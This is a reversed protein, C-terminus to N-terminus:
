VPVYNLFRPESPGFQTLSCHTANYPCYAQHLACRSWSITSTPNSVWGWIQVSLVLLMLIGEQKAHWASDLSDPVQRKSLGTTAGCRRMQADQRHFFGTSGFAHHRALFTGPSGPAMGKVNAYATPQSGLAGRKRPLFTCHTMTFTSSLFPASLDSRMSGGKRPGSPVARM